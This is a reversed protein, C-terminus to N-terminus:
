ADFFMCYCDDKLDMALQIPTPHCLDDDRGWGRPGPTWGKEKFAICDKAGAGPNQPLALTLGIFALFLVLLRM